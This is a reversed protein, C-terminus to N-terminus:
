PAEAGFPDDRSPARPCTKHLFHCKLLAKFLEKPLSAFVSCQLHTTSLKLVPMFAPFTATRPELLCSSKTRSCFLTFVCFSMPIHPHFSFCFGLDPPCRFEAWPLHVQIRSVTFFRYLNSCLFINTFAFGLLIQPDSPLPM